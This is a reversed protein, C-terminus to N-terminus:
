NEGPWEGGWPKMGCKPCGANVKIFKSGCVPCPSKALRCGKPILDPKQVHWIMTRDIGPLPSLGEYIITIDTNEITNEIVVLADPSPVWDLYYSDDNWNGSDIDFQVAEPALRRRLESKGCGPPGIIQILRNM